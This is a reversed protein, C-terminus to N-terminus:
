PQVVGKGKVKGVTAPTKCSLLQKTFWKTLDGRTFNPNDVDIIMRMLSLAARAQEDLDAGLPPECFRTSEPDSCEVIVIGCFKEARRIDSRNITGPKALFMPRLKEESM